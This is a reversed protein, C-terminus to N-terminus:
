REVLKEYLKIIKDIKRNIDFREEALKRGNSGMRKM